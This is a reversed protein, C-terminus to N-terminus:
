RLGSPLRPSSILAEFERWRALPQDATGGKREIYARVLDQGVNYNIVYSRYREIFRVRQEARERDMLGFRVLWSVTDAQSVKGDLYGRAAENGAYTLGQLLDIAKQYTPALSPDLGALPYLVRQEFELRETGPFAVEIGFNATGEAILSQPSFLAYVSFENWGRDRVLGKELLANYVHHGPYGEHCALDIARDITIPLDTNVQILSHFGGMYWNYASWPKGQVYEVDFSEGAPLTLHAATRQRCEAIAARFVADIKEKPLTVRARLAEMREAVSGSGPLAQDLRDLIEQYHSEPYSPSRADYLAKSEDDFALKKGTVLDVRAILSELQRQLYTRRLETLGNESPAAAAGDGNAARPSALAALRAHLGKAESRIEALPEKRIAASLRWEAPGYFADVYDADYHGLSLVLQVYADAIPNM